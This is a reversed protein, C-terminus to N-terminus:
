KIRDIFHFPSWAVLCSAGALFSMDVVRPPGGLYTSSLGQNASPTCLGSSVTLPGLLTLLIFLRTLQPRAHNIASIRARLACSTKKKPRRM